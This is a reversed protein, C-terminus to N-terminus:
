HSRSELKINDYNAVYKNWINIEVSEVGPHTMVVNKLRDLQNLNKAFVNICLDYKGITKEVRSIVILEKIVEIVSQEQSSELNIGILALFGYGFNSMKSILVPKIIVKNKKLQDVRKKIAVASIGCEKAINKMRARSDKLLAHLIKADIEDIEIM